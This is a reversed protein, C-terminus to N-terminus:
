FGRGIKGLKASCMQKKKVTTPVKGGSEARNGWYSSRERRSEASSRLEM